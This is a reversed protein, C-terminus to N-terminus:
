SKDNDHHRKTEKMFFFLVELRLEFVRLSSLGAERRPTSYARWSVNWKSVVKDLPIINVFNVLIVM